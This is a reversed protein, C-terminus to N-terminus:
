KKIGRKNLWARYKNANKAHGSNNKAFAHLGSNDPKACFFIYDHKEYNLVADITGIDPMFIPGPPLGSYKYTNYPSDYALHKNLVRRIGFDGVAFVVTPDAQLLMGRKLRNIYVGAIRPKEKKVLTEKEVISALTYVEEPSLNLSKAKELRTANWFKDTEKHMRKVLSEVSTNWFAEYTNPTFLSLINERTKGYKQLTNTDTIYALFSLSDVQINRTIRGSLDEVTRLSNFTVSVPSQVGSRLASILARNSWNKKAKFRGPKITQDYKMWKAVQEFNAKDILIGQDLLETSVEEITMGERITFTYEEQADAVNVGWIKNYIVAGAIAALIALVLIISFFKKM